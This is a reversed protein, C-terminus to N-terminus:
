IEDGDEKIEFLEDMAMGFGKCITAMESASVRGGRVIHSLRGPDIGIRRAIESQSVGSAHIQNRLEQRAKIM